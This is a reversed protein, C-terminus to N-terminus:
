RTKRKNSAIIPRANFPVSLKETTLYLTAVDATGTRDIRDFVFGNSGNNDDDDDDDPDIKSSTRRRCAALWDVVRAGTPVSSKADGDDEVVSRSSSCGEALEPRRRSSFLSDM